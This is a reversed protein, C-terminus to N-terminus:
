AGPAATPPPPPAKVTVETGVPAFEVWTRGATLAIPAGNADAYTTVADRSLRSWTGKVIKGDTFVWAAGTGIVIGEANFRGVGGNYETFQVIVNQPAIQKGSAAKFAVGRQSRLWAGNTTDWAWDVDYGSPFGVFFSEAPTATASLADGASRYAFLARPPVPKGGLTWAAEPRAYLNHPAPRSNVRFLVDRNNEDVVIVPAAKARAVNEDVGGSFVFVGGLPWVVNADMPRVSRVPGVEPPAESNFLTIFRTIGGDVVEEYVTDAVDLGAQPRAQPTNEIKVWLASRKQSVGSSDVLGTLPAIPPATTTTTAMSTSVSKGSSAGASCAALVTAGVILTVLLKP